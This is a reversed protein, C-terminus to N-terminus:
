QGYGKELLWRCMERGWAAAVPFEQGLGIGHHGKPYVHLEFIVGHDALAKALLLSNQVPVCGDEATHWIFAPPTDATVNCESDYRHALAEDQWQDGLLMQRSGLHTYPGFTVVPYCPIFADPRSSLREIPDPSDPIGLDYQTAATCCLHGGASFGLVAVRDYGLSRVVKVARSADAGPAQYPCPNVRYDLVYAAIGVANIMRAIPDGEHEAKHCYGGGPIVIMAGRAGPVPFPNLSPQAQGPCQDTYPAQGPWLSIRQAM